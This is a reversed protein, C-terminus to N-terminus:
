RVNRPTASPLRSLLGHARTHTILKRIRQRDRAPWMEDLTQWAEAERGSYLYSFVIELVVRRADEFDARLFREIEGQAIKARAQAIESDYQETFQASVDHIGTRDVQLVVRPFPSCDYCRGDFSHFGGDSSMIRYQHSAPDKFVYFPSENRIPALIVPHEGLSAIEYTYCCHDGGSYGELILSPTGDGFIDEGSGEYVSVQSDELLLTQRGSADVLYGQCAPQHAKPNEVPTLRAQYKGIAFSASTGGARCTLTHVKEWKPKPWEAQAGVLPASLAVFAILRLALM